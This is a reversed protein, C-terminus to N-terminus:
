NGTAAARCGEIFSLSHGSCDSPDIIGEGKAWDYGRNHGSCDVTCEYGHSFMGKDPKNYRPHIEDDCIYKEDIYECSSFATNVSLM